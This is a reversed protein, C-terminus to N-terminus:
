KIQLARQSCQLSRHCTKFSGSQFLFPLDAHCHMRRKFWWVWQISFFTLLPSLYLLTKSTLPEHYIQNKASILPYSIGRTFVSHNYKKKEKQIIIQCGVMLLQVANTIYMFWIPTKDRGTFYLHVYIRVTKATASFVNTQLHKKIFSLNQSLQSTM